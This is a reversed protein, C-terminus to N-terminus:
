AGTGKAIKRRAYHRRIMSLGVSVGVIMGVALIILKIGGGDKGSMLAQAFVIIAVGYAMSALWSVLMYVGFKVEALGLLYGQVFFPPGPTVRVLVSLGVHDEADVVPLKYGLWTCLRELLPRFAYRALWYTLALNVALAVGSWVIVWGMGIQPGFVSGATLWFASLPFGLAPLVALATFFVPAGVQRILDTFRQAYVKFDVGRVVFYGAVAVVVALVALKILLARKRTPSPTESSM